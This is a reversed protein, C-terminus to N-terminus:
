AAASWVSGVAAPARGQWAHSNFNTGNTRGVLPRRRRWHSGALSLLVRREPIRARPLCASSRPWDGQPAPVSPASRRSMMLCPSPCSRSAAPRRPMSRALQGAAPVQERAHRRLGTTLHPVPSLAPSPPADPPRVRDFFDGTSVHRPPRVDLTAGGKLIFDDTPGGRRDLFQRRARAACVQSPTETCVISGCCCM